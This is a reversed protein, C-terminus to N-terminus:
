TAATGLPTWLMTSSSVAAKELSAGIPTLQEHMRDADRRTQMMYTRAGPSTRGQNAGEPVRINRYSGLPVVCHMHGGAARAHFPGKQVIGPLRMSGRPNGQAAGCSLPRHTTKTRSFPVLLSFTPQGAVGHQHLTTQPAPKSVVDDGGVNGPATQVPVVRWTDLRGGSDFVLVAPLLGFLLPNRVRYARWCSRLSSM